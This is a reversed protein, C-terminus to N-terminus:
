RGGEQEAMGLMRAACTRIIDSTSVGQTYPLLVLRVGHAKLFADDCRIQRKYSELEWDDGHVIQTVEERRVVDRISYDNSIEVHDVYRCAALMTRRDDERTIPPRKYAATLADGNIVVVLRDGLARARRLLEVHGAHFLDFVGVVLVTERRSAPLGAATAETHIMADRHDLRAM